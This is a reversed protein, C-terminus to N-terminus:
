RVRAGFHHSQKKQEGEEHQPGTVAVGSGHVHTYSGARSDYSSKVLLCGM